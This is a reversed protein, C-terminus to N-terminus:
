RNTGEVSNEHARERQQPRRRAFADCTALAVLGLLAPRRPADDARGGQVLVRGPVPMNSLPGIVRYNAIPHPDGQVMLRQTEPRIEDGRFQGRRHLVAPGAHLRRDDAGTVATASEPQAVRRERVPLFDTCPDASRDLDATYIGHEAVATEPQPRAARSGCAVLLAVISLVITKM